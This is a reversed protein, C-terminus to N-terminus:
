RRLPPELPVRFALAPLDASCSTVGLRAGYAFRVIPPEPDRREVEVNSVAHCRPSGGRFFAVATRGDGTVEVHEAVLPEDDVTIAGELPVVIWEEGPVTPTATPRIREADAGGAGYCGALLVALAALAATRRRVASPREAM